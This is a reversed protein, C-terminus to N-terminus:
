GGSSLQLFSPPVLGPETVHVLMRGLTWQSFSWQDSDCNTLRLRHYGAPVAGGGPASTANSVNVTPAVSLTIGLPLDLEVQVVPLIM